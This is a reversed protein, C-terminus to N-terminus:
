RYNAATPMFCNYTNDPTSIENILPAGQFITNQVWLHSKPDFKNVGLFALKCRLLHMPKFNHANVNAQIDGYTCEGMTQIRKIVTKFHPYELTLAGVNKIQSDSRVLTQIKQYCLNVGLAVSLPLSKQKIEEEDRTGLRPEMKQKSYYWCTHKNKAHNFNIKIAWQYRSEIIDKLTAISMEPNLTHGEETAAHQDLHDIKEPYIEFLMSIILEQADISLDTESYSLLTDINTEHQLKLQLKIMDKIIISNIVKQEKNSIIIEEHHNIVDQSVNKLASIKQPTLNNENRIISLGTERTLIWKNILQPHNILFPAMGLGTSNGIGLYRRSTNKLPTFNEPNKNYAIHEAQYLSFHRIIFCTLMEASFPQDFDTYHQKVHSWDAMGFKGSGYVASIRHLYGVEILKEADPQNGQSLKDILYDFSRSSRNARSLSLCRCDFRGKEQRPVNKTLHNIDTKSIEGYILATTIDWQTAICRDNRENDPIFNSFVIFSYHEKPTKIEYITNGFGQKDINISTLTIKWKEKYMRRLLVRSFSLRSQFLTGLREIDMVQNFPRLKQKEENETKKVASNKM